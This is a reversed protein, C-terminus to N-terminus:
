PHLDICFKVEKTPLSFPFGKKVSDAKIKDARDWCELCHDVNQSNIISSLGDRGCLDCRYLKKKRNM